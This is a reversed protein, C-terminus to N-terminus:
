PQCQTLDQSWLYSILMVSFFLCAMLAPMSDDQSWLYSILMVSFFLCAMLAPM